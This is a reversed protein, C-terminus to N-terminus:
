YEVWNLGQLVPQPCDFWIADFVVIRELIRAAIYFHLILSLSIHNQCIKIEKSRLLWYVNMRINKLSRSAEETEEFWLMARSLACYVCLCIFKVWNEAAVRLISFVGFRSMQVNRCTVHSGPMVAGGGERCPSEILCTNYTPTLNRYLIEM